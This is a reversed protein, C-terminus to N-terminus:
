EKEPIELAAAPRVEWPEESLKALAKKFERRITATAEGAQQTAVKSGIRPASAMLSLTLASIMEGLWKQVDVKKLYLGKSVDIDFRLMENKLKWNEDRLNGKTEKVIGNAAMWAEVEAVDWGDSYQKPYDPLKSWRSISKVSVGAAKALQTKTKVRLFPTIDTKTHSEM